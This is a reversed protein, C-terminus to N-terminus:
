PKTRWLPIDLCWRGVALSVGRAEPHACACLLFYFPWFLEVTLAPYAGNPTYPYFRRRAM